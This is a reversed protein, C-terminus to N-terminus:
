IYQFKSITTLSNRGSHTGNLNLDPSLFSNPRTNICKHTHIHKHSPLGHSGWTCLGKALPLVQLSRCLPKQIVSDTNSYMTNQFQKKLSISFDYKVGNNKEGVFGREFMWSNKKKKLHGTAATPKKKLPSPASKALSKQLKYPQTGQWLLWMYGVYIGM